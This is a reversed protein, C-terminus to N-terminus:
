RLVTREKIPNKICKTKRCYRFGNDKMYRLVKESISSTLLFENVLEETFAETKMKGNIRKIREAVSIKKEWKPQYQKKIEDNLKQLTEQDKKTEYEKLLDLIEHRGLADFMKLFKDKHKIFEEENIYEM